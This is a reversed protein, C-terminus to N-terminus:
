LKVVSHTSASIMLRFVHNYAKRNALGAISWACLDDIEIRVLLSYRQDETQDDTYDVKLSLNQQVAFELEGSEDIKARIVGAVTAIGTTASIQLRQQSIDGPVVFCGRLTEDLQPAVFCNSPLLILARARSRGNSGHGFPRKSLSKAGILRSRLHANRRLADQIKRKIESPEARPKPAIVDSMHRGSGDFWTKATQRESQWELEGNLTV